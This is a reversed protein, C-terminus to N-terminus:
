RRRFPDEYEKVGLKDLAIGHAEQERGHKAITAENLGVTTVYCGEFWFRWNGFEHKLNAHRDFVMLDSKGRLCGMFSSVGIEPPMSVLMHVHDPMLHGEITEVGKYGRLQRLIEGLSDGYQNCTIKRGHM